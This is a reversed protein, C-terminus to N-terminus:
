QTLRTTPRGRSSERDRKHDWHDPQMPRKLRKDPHARPADYPPLPGYTEAPLLTLHGDQVVNWGLWRWAGDGPRYTAPPCRGPPTAM